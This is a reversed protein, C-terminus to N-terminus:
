ELGVRKEITLQALSIDFLLEDDSRVGRRKYGFSSQNASFVTRTALPCPEEGIIAKLSLLALCSTSCSEQSAPRL